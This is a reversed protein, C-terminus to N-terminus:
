EKEKQTDEEQVEEEIREELSQLRDELQHLSKTIGLIVNKLSDAYKEFSDLKEILIDEDVEKENNKSLNDM